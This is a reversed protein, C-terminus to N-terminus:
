ACHSIACANPLDMCGAITEPLVFLTGSTGSKDPLRLWIHVIRRITPHLPFMM